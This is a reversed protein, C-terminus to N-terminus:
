VKKKLLSLATATTKMLMPQSFILVKSHLNFPALQVNIKNAVKMLFAIQVVTTAMDSGM